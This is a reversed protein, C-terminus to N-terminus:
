RSPTRGEVALRETFPDLRGGEAIVQVSAHFALGKGGALGGKLDIRGKGIETVADQVRDLQLSFTHSGPREASLRVVIVQDPASAFVERVYRVAGARYAVRATATDLDLELRYDQPADEHDFNLRLDGLTQYSELRHPRGMLKKEALLAAQQPQGAFLLRRVGGLNALAEPNDRERRGGMWLSSENLQIRERRADGFVVAGLRGNGLPLGHDWRPAPRKYWLKTEAASVGAPALLTLLLVADPRRM